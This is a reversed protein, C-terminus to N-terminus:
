RVYGFRAMHQGNTDLISQILDPSLVERGEGPRGRRFFAKATPPREKFGEEREQDALIAFRSHRVAREIQQPPLDLGLFAVLETFKADPAAILDEYRLVLVKPHPQWTWSAVHQSWSGIFDAVHKDSPATRFTTDAMHGVMEAPTVGYHHAASVAVDIPDRVIYIAGATFDPEILAMDFQQGFWSHTKLFVSESARECIARQVEHRLRLIHQPPLDLTPRGYVVDYLARSTLSACFRDLASLRFPEDPELALNALFARLWTNGSKPYSAIWIIKGM